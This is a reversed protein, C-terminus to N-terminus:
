TLYIFLRFHFIISGTVVAIRQPTRSLSILVAFDAVDIVLWDQHLAAIQTELYRSGLRFCAAVLKDVKRIDLRVNNQEPCVDITGSQRAPVGSVNKSRWLPRIKIMM